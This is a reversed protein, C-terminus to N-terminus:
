ISLAYESYQQAKEYWLLIFDGVNVGNIENRIDWVFWFWATVAACAMLHKEDNLTIEREFYNAFIKRAKVGIFGARMVPKVIDFGMDNNGAFEWDILNIHGDSCLLNPASIDNHSLKSPWPNEKLYRNLEEIKKKMKSFSALRQKGAYSINKEIKLSEEWFDFDTLARKNCSQLRKVIDLVAYLQDENTFDIVTENAVFASIKWGECDDMYVLSNDIGLTSAVTQAAAENKRNIDYFGPHRYVYKSGNCMFSFTKNTLGGKMPAIGSIDSPKCSLIKCINDLICSDTNTIYYDDFARLDDLSDFELITNDPYQKIYLDLENIHLDYIWEWLYDRIVPNNYEAELIALFKKAFDFSWYSKGFMLWKDTTPRETKYIRGDTDFYLGRENVHGKAYISDYFSRYVHSEFVNYTFYNDSGCVYSNGLYNRAAWISGNNNRTAYENNVVITVGYKEKLYFYQEMMYGVVVVIETVGAERLQNIQREILVEGKCVMLGKPKEFSFPVFRTSMGAALIVANRVKYPELAVEGLSTVKNSSEIWGKDSFDKLTANVKGLSISCQKAIERQSITTKTKYLLYLIDFEQKNM